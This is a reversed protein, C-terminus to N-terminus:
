EGVRDTAALAPGPAAHPAIQALGLAMLGGILTALVRHEATQLADGHVLTLLMVVSATIAATLVSYHAKQLAYSLGATVGLGMLLVVPSAGTAWALLSAALCGAITGALRAVGRARTEHLHPKLVILATMPAWYSNALGMTRAAVLSLSVGIVARSVHGVVLRRSPAPKPAPRPLRQAASPALRALGIVVAMQAAGGLLVLGARQAAATLDGPYYGAVLLAIVVQLVVWWLDEDVLALYACGAAAAASVLTLSWLAEGSLSGIFAALAMGMMAALMAAWRRGALDRAAGFGVSFAAGAAVASQALHGTALGIIMLGPLAPVCLMAERGYFPRALGAFPSRALRDAFTM